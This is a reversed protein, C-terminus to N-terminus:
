RALRAPNKVSRLNSCKGRPDDRYRREAHLWEVNAVDNFRNRAAARPTRNATVGRSVVVLQGFLEASSSDVGDVFADFVSRSSPMKASPLPVPLIRNCINMSYSARKETRGDALIGLERLTEVREDIADVGARGLQKPLQDYYTAPTVAFRVGRQRLVSVTEVINRVHIAVHQVGSGRHDVRFARDAFRLFGAAQARQACVQDEFRCGLVRCVELRVQHTEIIM